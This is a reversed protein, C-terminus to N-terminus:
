FQRTAQGNCFKESDFKELIQKILQGVGQDPQPSKKGLRCGEATQTAAL